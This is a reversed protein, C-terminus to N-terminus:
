SCGAHVGSCTLSFWDQLQVTASIEADTILLLLQLNVHQQWREGAQFDVGGKKEAQSNSTQMTRHTNQVTM